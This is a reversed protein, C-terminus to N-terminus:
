LQYFINEKMLYITKEEEPLDNLLSLSVITRGTFFKGFYDVNKIKPKKALNKISM